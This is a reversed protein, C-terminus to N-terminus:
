KSTVAAGGLIKVIDKWGSLMDAHLAPKVERDFAFAEVRIFSVGSANAHLDVRPRFGIVAWPSSAAMELVAEMAQKPDVLGPIELELKVTHAASSGGTRVDTTGIAARYPIQSLRGDDTEIELHRLRLRRLQGEAQGIRIVEGVEFPREAAFVLGAAIDRLVNWQTAVVLLVAAIFAYLVFNNQSGWFYQVCWLVLLIWIGLEVIPWLRSGILAWQKEEQAARQILRAILRNVLFLVFGFFLLWALRTWDSNEKEFPVETVPPRLLAGPIESLVAAPTKPKPKSISPTKKRPPKRPRARRPTSVPTVAPKAREVPDATIPPKPIGQPPLSKTQGQHRILKPETNQSLTTAPAVTASASQPPAPTQGLVGSL